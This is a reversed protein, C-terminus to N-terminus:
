FCFFSLLSNMSNLISFEILSISNDLHACGSINLGYIKGFSSKVDNLYKNKIKYLRIIKEIQASEFM